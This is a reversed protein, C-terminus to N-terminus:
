ALAGAKATRLARVARWIRSDDPFADLGAAECFAARADADGAHCYPSEEGDRLREMEERAERISDLIDSVARRVAGCLAPFGDAGTARAARREALVNRAERRLDAVRAALDAWAAGAGWAAQYESERKAAREALCDAARAAARRAAEADSEERGDATYVDGCDFTGSDDHGCFRFGPVFRARGDRGRLQAVVGVVLGWGDRSSEGRPNDYWQSAERGIVDPADRVDRFVDPGRGGGNWYFLRGEGQWTGPGYDASPRSCLALAARVRRAAALDGPARAHAEEAAALDALRERAIAVAALAPRSGDRRARAYADALTPRNPM